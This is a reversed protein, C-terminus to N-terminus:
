SRASIKFETTTNIRECGNKLSKVAIEMDAENLPELHLLQRSEEINQQIYQPQM